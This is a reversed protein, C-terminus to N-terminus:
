IVDMGWYAMGKMSAAAGEPVRPHEVLLWTLLVSEADGDASM